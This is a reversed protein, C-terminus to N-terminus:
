NNYYICLTIRLKTNPDHDNNDRPFKNYYNQAGYEIIILFTLLNIIYISKSIQKLTLSIKFTMYSVSSSQNSQTFKVVILISKTLRILKQKVRKSM